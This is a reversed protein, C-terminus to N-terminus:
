ILRHEYLREYCSRCHKELERLHAPVEIRQERYPAFGTSQAVEGYWHKAWAGDTPRLGPPWSLMARDFEIGIAACLLRLAREPNRLVDGAEIVPPVTGTQRRVLDFIEAQQVFGLDELTADDKKKVYSTIVEAPDRILFCNTLSGIWERGVEPLLHHTMQKQYFITKGAIAKITLSAVVKRWDIEGAAIVEEAMPHNKGTAGLYFAYLPEDVVVTDARNEWARMMATSINRPGSWMALRLLKVGTIGKLSCLNAVSARRKAEPILEGNCGQRDDDGEAICGTGESGRKARADKFARGRSSHL